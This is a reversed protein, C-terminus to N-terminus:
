LHLFPSVMHFLDGAKGDVMDPQLRTKIYGTLVLCPLGGDGGEVQAKGTGVFLRNHIGGLHVGHLVQCSSVQTILRIPFILHQVKAGHAATGAEIQQKGAVILALIYLAQNGITEAKHSVKGAFNGAGASLIAAIIQIHVQGHCIVPALTIALKQFSGAFISEM